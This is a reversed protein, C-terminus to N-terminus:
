NQVTAKVLKNEVNYEYLASQASGIVRVLNGNLDYEYSTSGFPTTVKTLRCANDYGYAVYNGDPYDVRTLGDMLYYTFM